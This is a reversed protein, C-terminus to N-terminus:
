KKDAHKIRGRVFTEPISETKKINKEIIGNNIWITGYQSNNIDISKLSEQKLKLDNIYKVMDIRPTITKDILKQLKYEAEYEVAWCINYTQLNKPITLRLTKATNCEDCEILYCKNDYITCFYDIENSSYTRTHIGDGRFQSTTCAIHIAGCDLYKSTKVQIKLLNGFYDIIFDYPAYDGLPFSVTCGLKMLYVACEYETITGIQKTSLIM